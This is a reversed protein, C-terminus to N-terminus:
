AWDSLVPCPNGERVIRPRASPALISIAEDLATVEATRHSLFAYRHHSVCAGGQEGSGGAAQAEGKCAAEGAVAPAEDEVSTASLRQFGRARLESVYGRDHCNGTIHSVGAVPLCQGLCRPTQTSEIGDDIIGTYEAGAWLWREQVIREIHQLLNV